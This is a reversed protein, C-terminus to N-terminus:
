PCPAPNLREAGASDRGKTGEERLRNVATALYFYGAGMAPVQPDTTTEGLIPSQRCAGYGLGSLTSLLDRYLNYHGTSKEPNWLLTVRDGAFRLGTVEDPPPYASVFGADLRFSASALGTGLIGEGIADLRIKYGASSLVTGGEPHGGGNLVNERLRYSASQQGWAAGSAALALPLGLSLFQIFRRTQM